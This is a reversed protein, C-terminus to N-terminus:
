AGTENNGRAEAGVSLCLSLSCRSWGGVNGRVRRYIVRRADSSLSTLLAPHSPQHNGGTGPHEVSGNRTIHVLPRGTAQQSQRQIEQCQNNGMYTVIVPFLM